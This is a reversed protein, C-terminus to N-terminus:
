DKGNFFWGRKRFYMITAISIAIMSFIASWLGTVTDLGPIKTFNMGYFSAIFTLPLLISSFVTLVKMVENVKRDNISLHLSFLQDFNHSIDDLRFYLHDIQERLDQVLEPTKSWINRSQILAIESKKLLGKLIFIKRRFQYVRNLSLQDSSQSLVDDEFEVYSKHLQSISDEFTLAVGKILCHLLVQLQEPAHAQCSEELEILFPLRNGHITHIRENTVFFGVSHTIDDLSVDHDQCGGHFARFLIFHGDRTQEYKPLHEPTLCDQILLPSIRYEERLFDFDAKLPQVIDIWSYQQNIVINETIM